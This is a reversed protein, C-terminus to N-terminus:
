EVDISWLMRKKDFSGCDAMGEGAMLGYEDSEGLTQKSFLQEDISDYFDADSMNEVHAIKNVCFDETEESLNNYFMLCSQKDQSNESSTDTNLSSKGDKKGSLQEWTKLINPNVKGVLRCESRQESKQPCFNKTKPVILSEDDDEKKDLIDVSNDVIYKVEVERNKENCESSVVSCREEDMLLIPHKYALELQPEDGDDDTLTIPLFTPSFIAPPKARIKALYEKILDRAKLSHNTDSFTEAV